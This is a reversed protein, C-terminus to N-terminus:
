SGAAACVYSSASQAAGSVYKPYLPYVCIPKTALVTFPLTATSISTSVQNAPANGGEVWSELIPLWDTQTPMGNVTGASTQAGDANIGNPTGAASAVTNGCGHNASPTVYLRASRDLAPVGFKAVMASYYFFGSSPSQAYDGTCDHVILKGGHAFFPTLDPDTMDMLASVQQIRPVFLNPSYNNVVDFTGDGAIFYKAYGFGYNVDFSAGAEAFNAGPTTGTKLSYSNSEGGYGWGPYTTIGNALPYAFTTDAHTLSIGEVQKQSFCTADGKYVGGLCMKSLIASDAKQQCTLYSGVVGDVIGDDADCAALVTQYLLNTEATNLYAEYVGTSPNKSRLSQQGTRVLANFLGTWNIVASNAYIGDFDLPYRQAMALGERGGESTGTYYATKPASGYYSLALQIGLDHVKKYSEFAFNRLMEDNTGFDYNKPSGRGLANVHGGDTGLTMYGRHLPTEATPPAVVGGVQGLGTILIGNFGGGGLQMSKNNWVTPLNVQFGIKQAAPDLPDIQGNVQCYEPAAPTLVGAPTVSLAAAAILQASAIHADGSKLSAGNSTGINAAAITKGQLAACTAASPQLVASAPGDSGGGCAQLAALALLPGALALLRVSGVGRGPLLRPRGGKSDCSPAPIKSGHANTTAFMWETM